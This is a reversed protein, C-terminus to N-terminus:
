FEKWNTQIICVPVPAIFQLSTDAAITKIDLRFNGFKCQPPMLEKLSEMVQIMEETLEDANREGGSGGSKKTQSQETFPNTVFNAVTRFRVRDGSSFLLGNGNTTNVVYINSDGQKSCSDVLTNNASGEDGCGINIVNGEDDVVEPIFSSFVTIGSLAFGETIVREDSRLVFYWGGNSELFDGTQQVADAAPDVQQLDAETLPATIDDVSDFHDVIVYFRGQQGPATWLDERDGTGFAIAFNGASARFIVSPAFYIPRPQATASSGDFNADFIKVPRWVSRPLRVTKITRTTRSNDDNVHFANVDVEDLAPLNGSSDPVMDVRYMFGAITGVYIRDLYGDNDTDVAAPDAPAAGELRQKYLVQGTEVDVMYLWNGRKEALPTGKSDLDMGGAFVAVFRDELDDDVTDDVSVDVNCATGDDPCVRIRGINPTSWTDGLDHQGCSPDTNCAGNPLVNVDEDAFYWDGSDFYTDTFEWVVSPFSVPGCEREMLRTESPSTPDSVDIADPLCLPRYDNDASPNNSGADHTTPVFDLDAHATVPDPQTLDLAYYGSRGEPPTAALESGGERLGGIIVTRWERDAAEPFASSDQKVPDIFVDAAAVNGDVSFRHATRAGEQEVLTPLVPRPIYSFLEKGTGNDFSGFENPKVEDTSDKLEEKTFFDEGETRFIGADFVHLQGDNAGVLLMKRRFRQRNFFCRYGTNANGDGATCDEDNAYLDSAFYFPNAPTGIVQPTSHFTDGLLFRITTSTSDGTLPDVSTVTGTKAQLTYEIVDTSTDQATQNDSPSNPDEEDEQFDLGMGEWLDFRLPQDATNGEEDELELPDFLRKLLAWRGPETSRVAYFVRRKAGDTLSLRESAVDSSDYQHTLMTEGSDWLFCRTVEDTCNEGNEDCDPLNAAVTPCTRELDPRDTEEDLPLPKIFALLHGDWTGSDNLPTFNTLFIKQEVTAQVTPVAASAFSRAETRIQGLISRLTQRLQTTTSVNICEGGGARVIPHLGGGSECGREPGLNLAWTKVGSHSELAGVDANADEGGGGSEEGDSLVILFPRRCGFASDNECALEEWGKDFFVAGQCKNSAAQGEDGLYWCRVDNLTKALPSRDLALLPIASTSRLALIDNGNATDEYYSAGRFDPTSSFELSPAVRKLLPARQTNDWDFPMLDGIDMARGLSSVVTQRVPKVARVEKIDPNCDAGPSNQNANLCFFDDDTVQDDFTTDGTLVGSDYNGEWGKGTFPHDNDFNANSVAGQYEWLGATVETGKNGSGITGDVYLTQNLHPDQELALTWTSTAAVVTSDFTSCAPVTWIELLMRVGDSGIGPNSVTDGLEDVYSDPLSAELYYTVGGEELWFVTPEPDDDGDIAFAQARASDVDDDLDLPDACSGAVRTESGDIVFAPGLTLVDGNIEEVRTDPAPLPIENGDEDVRPFEIENGNEDVEKILVLQTLKSGDPPAFGPEQFDALNPHTLDPDATSEAAPFTIPWTSPTSETHYYIWHKATVHGFDQNYSAFGYHVDDVDKFVNYLAQKAQYLRSGPSDAGAPTWVDSDGMQLGMSASTDLVIFVYPKATDFRLLDRDDTWAPRGGVLLLGVLLTALLFRWPLKRLPNPRHLERTM